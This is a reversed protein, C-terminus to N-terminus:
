SRPRPLRQWAPASFVGARLRRYDAPPKVTALYSTGESTLADAIFAVSRSDPSWCVLFAGIDNTAYGWYDTSVTQQYRGDAGIIPITFYPSPGSGDNVCAM